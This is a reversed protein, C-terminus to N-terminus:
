DIHSLAILGGGGLSLQQLLQRRQQQQRLRRRLRRRRRRRKRHLFAAPIADLILTQPAAALSLSCFNDRNGRRLFSSLSASFLQVAPPPPLRGSSLPFPLFSPPPVLSLFPLLLLLLCFLKRSHSSSSPMARSILYLQSSFSLLSLALKCSVSLFTVSM